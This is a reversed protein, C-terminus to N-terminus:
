ASHELLTQMRAQLEQTLVALGEANNLYKIYRLHRLDFPIDHESQTILIVERGLTHAIGTEYFVNPNRSSCDCVVIRSHDILTVVDQIIAPNEWFDDARKCELSVHESAQRIAGYVANFEAGFPMMVSVLTLDIQAHKPIKFVAPGARRPQNNHLLFQYLDVDKVAWHNRSFEGMGRGPGRHMHLKAHNEYLMSNQLPPVETDISVDLSVKQGIIQARNIKGVYVTETDIGEGCFLCPLLTLRDFLPKGDERFQEIIHDDTYEFIRDIPVSVPNKQWDVGFMLLNFM